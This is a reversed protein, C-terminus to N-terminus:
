DEDYENLHPPSWDDLAEEIARKQHKPKSSAQEAEIRRGVPVDGIATRAMTKVQKVASYTKQKRHKMFHRFISSDFGAGKRSGVANWAAQCGDGADEM